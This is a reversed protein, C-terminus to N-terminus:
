IEIMRRIGYEWQCFSEKWRKLPVLVKECEERVTEIELVTFKLRNKTLVLFM